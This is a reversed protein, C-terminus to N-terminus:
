FDSAPRKEFWAKISEVESVNSIVKHLNPRDALADAGGQFKIFDVLSVFYTDAWTLQLLILLM